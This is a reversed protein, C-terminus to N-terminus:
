NVYRSVFNMNFCTDHKFKAKFNVRSLLSSFLSEATLIQFTDDDLDDDDEDDEPSSRGGGTQERGM